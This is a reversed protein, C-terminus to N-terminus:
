QLLTLSKALTSERWYCDSPRVWEAAAGEGVAADALM